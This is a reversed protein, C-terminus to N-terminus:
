RTPTSLKLGFYDPLVGDQKQGPITKSLNSTEGSDTAAGPATRATTHDVEFGLHSGVLDIAKPIALAPAAKGSKDTDVKNADMGPRARQNTFADPDVNPSEIPAFASPQKAPQQAQAAGASWCGLTLLIAAIWRM